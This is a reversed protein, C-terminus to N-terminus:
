WLVPVEVTKSLQLHDFTESFGFKAPDEEDEPGTPGRYTTLLGINEPDKM